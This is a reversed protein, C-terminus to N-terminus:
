ICVVIFHWNGHSGFIAYFLINHYYDGQNQFIVNNSLGVISRVFPKNNKINWRINLPMFQIM